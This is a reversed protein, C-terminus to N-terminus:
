FPKLALFIGYKSTERSHATKSASRKPSLLASESAIAAQLLSRHGQVVGVRGGTRGDIRDRSVLM